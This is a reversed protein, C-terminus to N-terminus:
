RFWSKVDGHLKFVSILKGDMKLGLHLFIVVVSEKIIVPFKPAVLELIESSFNKKIFRKFKTKMM